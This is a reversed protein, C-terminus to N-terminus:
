GHCIHLSVERFKKKYFSLVKHDLPRHITQTHLAQIQKFTKANKM